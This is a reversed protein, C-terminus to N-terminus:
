FVSLGGTRAPLVRRAFPRGRGGGEGWGARRGSYRGGGGHRVDRDGRGAEHAGRAGGEAGGDLWGRPVCLAGFCLRANNRLGAGHKWRVLRWCLTTPRGAAAAARPARAAAAAPAFRRAAAFSAAGEQADGKLHRGARAPARAPRQQLRATPASAASPLRGRPPSSPARAPAASAGARTASSPDNQCADLLCVSFFGVCKFM